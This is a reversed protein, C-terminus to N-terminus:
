LREGENLDVDLSPLQAPWNEQWSRLKNHEGTVSLHVREEQLIVHDLRLSVPLTRIFNLSSVVQLQRTALSPWPWQFATVPETTQKVIVASGFVGIVAVLCMSLMIARCARQEAQRELYDSRYSLFSPMLSKLVRWSPAQSKRILGESFIQPLGLQVFADHHKKLLLALYMTPSQASSNLVVYSLMQPQDAYLTINSAQTHAALLYLSKPLDSELRCEGFELWDDPLLVTLSKCKYSQRFNALLKLADDISVQGTHTTELQSLHNGADLFYRKRSIFQWAGQRWILFHPRAFFSM